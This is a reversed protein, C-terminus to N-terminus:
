IAISYQTTIKDTVNDKRILATAFGGDVISNSIAIFLTILGFIGFEKPSLLRALLIGVLFTIGSNALNDIFSWKIGNIAKTKISSGM